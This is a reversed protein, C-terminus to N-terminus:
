EYTLRLIINGNQNTVVVKNNSISEIKYVTSETTVTTITNGDASLSWTGAGFVEPDDPDCKTAGESVTFINNSSFNTCDDKDCADTGVYDNTVDQYPDAEAQKGEAKTVKWCGKDILIQTRSKEEDKKCALFNVSVVALLIFTKLLNKM